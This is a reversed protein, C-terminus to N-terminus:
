CKVELIVNCSSAVGILLQNFPFAKTFNKGDFGVREKEFRFLIDEISASIFEVYTSKM